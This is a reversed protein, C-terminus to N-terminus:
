ISVSPESSTKCIAIEFDGFIMDAASRGNAQAQDELDPYFVSFGRVWVEEIIKAEALAKATLDAKGGSAISARGAKALGLSSRL